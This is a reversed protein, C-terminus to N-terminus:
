RNSVHLVTLAVTAATQGSVMVVEGALPIYDELAQAESSNSATSYSIVIAGIAGSERVITLQYVGNVGELEQVRRLTPSWAVVGHPDDNAQVTVVAETEGPIVGAGRSPDGSDTVGNEVVNTLTITTVENLEAITDAQITLMITAM